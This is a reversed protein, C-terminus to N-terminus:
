WNRGYILFILFVGFAIIFLDLFNLKIEPLLELWIQKIGIFFYSTM